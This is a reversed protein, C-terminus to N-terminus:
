EAGGGWIGRWRSLHKTTPALLEGPDGTEEVANLALALAVPGRTQRISEARGLLMRASLGRAAAIRRILTMGRSLAERERTPANRPDPHPLYLALACAARHRVDEIPEQRRNQTM